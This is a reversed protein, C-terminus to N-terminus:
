APRSSEPRPALHAVEAMLDFIRRHNAQADHERRAVELSAQGMSRRLESDDVLRRLAL